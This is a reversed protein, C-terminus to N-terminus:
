ARRKGHGSNPWRRLFALAQTPDAAFDEILKEPLRRAVLFLEDADVELAEAIRGLLEDSPKERDAEIKSIHPVGVEVRDALVRQTMEQALRERRIREGITEGATVGDNHTANRLLVLPRPHDPEPAFAMDLEVVSAIM